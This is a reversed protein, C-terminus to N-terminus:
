CVEIVEHCNDHCHINLNWINLSPRVQYGFVSFMMTKTSLFVDVPKGLWRHWCGDVTMEMTAMPKVQEM